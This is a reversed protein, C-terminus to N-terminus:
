RIRKVIREMERDSERKKISERKDYFHKARCLAIEVKVKGRKFYVTLPVVTMGKEQVQRTLKNIERRNLLLKRPREPTHNNINGQLYPSVRSGVLWAEGKNLDVYSEKLSIANNVRISKVETGQLAIGAEFKELVHYEHYAKRNKTVIKIGSM